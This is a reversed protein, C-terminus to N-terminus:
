VLGGNISIVQGTIYAADDSFLFNVLGAVEEATGFRRMPIHRKIEDVPLDAVMDTHIFGPAVSNATIKRKALEQALAKTAGIIGAKAASYNVQGRNGTIGAVSSMSVVRGGKKARIMPMVLPNMINYFGDLNTHIVRDWEEGKMSPLPNDAHVGANLVVGWYVGNEEIDKELTARVLERDSIDFPLVYAQGGAAEIEALCSAAAEENRRYNIAIRFGAGALRLAVARGIGRGAGTVLVSREM